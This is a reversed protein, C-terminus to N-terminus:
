GAHISEVVVVVESVVDEISRGTSDLLLAEKSRALPSAARRTDAADRSGMSVLLEAPDEGTEAARRRVREELSATLFVKVEAEPFVVSGIDRGEMVVDRNGALQRQRATMEARVAPHASVQSVMETVDPERVRNSVDRSGVTVTGDIASIDVQRSIEALREGDAPDVGVEIALLALARYMGGTDIHAWGLRNAVAKAVTSKGSGAPGDIALVTM